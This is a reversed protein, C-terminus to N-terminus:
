SVAPRHAGPLGYRFPACLAIRIGRIALLSCIAPTERPDGSLVGTLILVGM